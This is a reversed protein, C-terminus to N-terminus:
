KKAELAKRKAKGNCRSCNDGYAEPGLEPEEPIRLNCMTYDPYLPDIFHRLSPISGRVWSVATLGKGIEVEIKERQEKSFTRVTKEGIIKINAAQPGRATAVLDFEIEMGSRFREGKPATSYHLWVDHRPVSSSRIFGMGNKQYWHTIVGVHRM